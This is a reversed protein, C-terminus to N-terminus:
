FGASEGKTAHFFINPKRYVALVVAGTDSKNDHFSGPKRWIYDGQLAIGDHDEVSGSLVFTQELEPHKHFPIFAGPELKLLCTMEGEGANEYLVKISVKEFRTPKWEMTDPKIYISGGITPQAKRPRDLTSADM